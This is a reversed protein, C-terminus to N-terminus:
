LVMCALNAMLSQTTDILYVVRETKTECFSIDLTLATREPQMKESFFHSPAFQTEDKDQM